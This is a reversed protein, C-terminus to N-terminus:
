PWAFVEFLISDFKLFNQQHGPVIATNEISLSFIKDSMGRSLKHFAITKLYKNLIM